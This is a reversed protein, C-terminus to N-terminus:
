RRTPFERLTWRNMGLVFDLMAPQHQGTFLLVVVTFPVLVVILGAFHIGFGAAAGTGTAGRAPTSSSLSSSASRRTATAATPRANPVAVV